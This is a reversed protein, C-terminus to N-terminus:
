NEQTTFFRRAFEERFTDLSGAATHKRIYDFFLLHHHLNHIMLLTDALMEHVNLLHHIYARHHNTCTYCTCGQLLVRDDRENQKDRLNLKNGLNRPPLSIDVDYVSANGLRTLRYPYPSDLLDVGLLIMDLIEVPGLLGSLMRPKDQPLCELVVQVMHRREEPSEGCCFGGLVFGDVDRKGMETACLRRLKEHVGGQVTAFLLPKQGQVPYAGEKAHLEICGDLWNLSRTISKSARSMSSFAPIEDSLSGFANPHFAAQLKM